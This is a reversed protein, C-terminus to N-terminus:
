VYLFVEKESHKQCFYYRNTCFERMRRLLDECASPWHTIWCQDGMSTRLGAGGLRGIGEISGIDFTLCTQKYGELRSISLISFGAM